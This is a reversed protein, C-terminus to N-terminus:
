YRVVLVSTKSHRVVRASNPGLLYDSLEPRHAGIIILDCGLKDSARMIEDYVSGSVIHPRVSVEPDFNDSVFEQVKEGLKHMADKQHDDNFFASVMSTGYDPVISITHVQAGTSKALINTKETVKKAGDNDALDLAVLIKNYM